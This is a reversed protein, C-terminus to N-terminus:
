VKFREQRRMELMINGVRKFPNLVQLALNIALLEETRITQRNLGYEEITVDDRRNCGKRASACASKSDVSKFDAAEVLQGTRIPLNRPHSRVVGGQDSYEPIQSVVAQLVPIPVATFRPKTESGLHYRFSIAYDHMQGITSDANWRLIKREDELISKA